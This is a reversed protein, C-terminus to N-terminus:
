DNQPPNPSIKPQTWDKFQVTGSPDPWVIEPEPKLKFGTCVELVCKFVASSMPCMNEGATHHTDSASSPSATADLHPWEAPEPTQPRCVEPWVSTPGETQWTVEWLGPSGCWTSICVFGTRHLQDMWKLNGCACEEWQELPIRDMEHLWASESSRSLLPLSLRIRHQFGFVPSTRWDCAQMGLSKYQMWLVYSWNMCERLILRMVKINSADHEVTVPRM